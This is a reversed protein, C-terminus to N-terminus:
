AADQNAPAGRVDPMGAKIRAELAELQQVYPRRRERHEADLEARLRQKLAPAASGAEIQQLERDHAFDLDALTALLAQVLPLITPSYCPNKV